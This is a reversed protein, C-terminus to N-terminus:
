TLHASVNQQDARRAGPFRHQGLLPQRGAERRQGQLLRQLRRLNVANDPQGARALGQDRPPRKARRMM